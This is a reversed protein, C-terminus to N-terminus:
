DKPNTCYSRKNHATIIKKLETIMTDFRNKEIPYSIGIMLGSFLWGIIGFGIASFHGSQLGFGISGATWGILLFLFFLTSGIPIRAVIDVKNYPNITAIVKVPFPTTIRFNFFFMQSLFYINNNTFHFKGEDMKITQGNKLELNKTDIELTIRKVPIGIKFAFALFSHLSIMEFIGIFWSSVGLTGVLLFLKSTM